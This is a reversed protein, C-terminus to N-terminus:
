LAAALDWTLDAVVNAREERLYFHGGPYTHVTPPATTFHAWEAMEPPTIIPDSTGCFTSVPCGINGTFSEGYSSHLIMDAAVASLAATRIAPDEFAAAAQADLSLVTGELDSRFRARVDLARGTLHAAPFASVGLLVPPIGAEALALAVRTAFLSGSSHGFLACPRTSGRLAATFATVLPEAETAPPLEARHERGPLALAYPAVFPPLHDAWARYVSAGGGGHPFCYLEVEARPRDALPLLWGSAALTATM